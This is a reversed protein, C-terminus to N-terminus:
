GTAAVLKQGPTPCWKQVLTLFDDEIITYILDMFLRILFVTNFLPALSSNLTYYTGLLMQCLRIRYRPKFLSFTARQVLVQVFEILRYWLVRM